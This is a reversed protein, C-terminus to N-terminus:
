ALTLAVLDTADDLAEIRSVAAVLADAKAAGLPVAGYGACRRFKAVNEADALPARPHGYVHPLTIAHEAGGKLRV